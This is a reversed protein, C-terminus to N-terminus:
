SVQSETVDEMEIALIQFPLFVQSHIKDKPFPPFTDMTRFGSPSPVATLQKRQEGAPYVQEKQRRDSKM